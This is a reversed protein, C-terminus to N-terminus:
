VSPRRVTSALLAPIIAVSSGTTAVIIPITQKPSPSVMKDAAPMRRTRAATTTKFIFFSHPSFLEWLFYLFVNEIPFFEAWISFGTQWNASFEWLFDLFLNEIPFFNKEQQSEQRDSYM